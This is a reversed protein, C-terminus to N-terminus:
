PVGGKLLKITIEWIRPSVHGNAGPPPLILSWPFSTAPPPAPLLKHLLKKLMNSFKVQITSLMQENKEMAGKACNKEAMKAVPGTYNKKTKM